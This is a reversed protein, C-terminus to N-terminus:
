GDTDSRLTNLVRNMWDATKMKEEKKKGDEKQTCSRMWFVNGYGISLHAMASAWDAISFRLRLFGRRSGTSLIWGKSFTVCVCLHPNWSLSITHIMIVAKNMSWPLLLQVTWIVCGGTVQNAHSTQVIILELCCSLDWTRMDQTTMPQLECHSARIYLPSSIQNYYAVLRLSTQYVKHNTLWM